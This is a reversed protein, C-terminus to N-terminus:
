SFYKQSDLPDAFNSFILRCCFYGSKRYLQLSGSFIYIRKSFCPILELHIDRNIENKNASKLHWGRSSLSSLVFSSQPQGLPVFVGGRPCNKLACGQSMPTQMHLKMIIPTFLFYNHAPFWKWYNICQSRSRKVEFAIPCMSSEHPTQM